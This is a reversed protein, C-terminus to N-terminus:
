TKNSNVKEDVCKYLPLEKPILGGRRNGFATLIIQLAADVTSKMEKENGIAPNVEVLDMANLRGTDHVIEM